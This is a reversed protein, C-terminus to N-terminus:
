ATWDTCTEGWFTSKCSQGKVHGGPCATITTNQNIVSGTTILEVGPVPQDSIVHINNEPFCAPDYGPVDVCRQPFIYGHTAGAQTSHVIIRNQRFVNGNKLVFLDMCPMSDYTGNKEPSFADPGKSNAPSNGRRNKGTRCVPGAPVDHADRGAFVWLSRIGRQELGPYEPYQYRYSSRTM